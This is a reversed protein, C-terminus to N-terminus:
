KSVIELIKKNTQAIERMTDAMQQLPLEKYVNIQGQLEAIAKVNEIHQKRDEEKQDELAKLRKEYTEILEKQNTITQKPIRSALALISGIILSIYGIISIPEIM